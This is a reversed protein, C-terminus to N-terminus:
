RMQFHPSGLILGAISPIDKDLASSSAFDVLIARADDPLLGGLFHMSLLDVVDQASSADDTVASLDVEVGRIQNSVLLMGFNWRDLLGSTTAWYEQKDPFGDPPSWTFPVQGLLRLYEQLARTNRRVTAGTLRLTSVFFDLPKKFKQGASAKFSESHFLARLLERIDGDTQTFVEALSNVLEAPPADSVFRAALKRSIFQAASPHEALMDLIMM